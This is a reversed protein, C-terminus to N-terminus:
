IINLCSLIFILIFRRFLYLYILIKFAHLVTYFIIIIITASSVENTGLVYIDKDLLNIAPKLNNSILCAYCFLCHLQTLQYPKEQLKEIACRIIPIASMQKEVAWLNTLMSKM